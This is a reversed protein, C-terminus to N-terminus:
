GGVVLKSAHDGQWGCSFFILVDYNDVQGLLDLKQPFVASNRCSEVLPSPSRPRRLLTFSVAGSFFADVWTRRRFQPLEVGSHYLVRVNKFCSDSSRTRLVYLRGCSPSFLLLFRCFFTSFSLLVDFSGVAVAAFGLWLSADFM